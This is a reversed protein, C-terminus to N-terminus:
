EGHHIWNLNDCTNVIEWDQFTWSYALMWWFIPKCNSYTFYLVITFTNFELCLFFHLWIREFLLIVGQMSYLFLLLSFWLTLFLCLLNSGQLLFYLFFTAIIPNNVRGIHLSNKFHTYWSLFRYCSICLCCQNIFQFRLLKFLNSINSITSCIIYSPFTM